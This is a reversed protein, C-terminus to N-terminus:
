LSVIVIYLIFLAFVMGFIPWICFSVHEGASAVALLDWIGHMKECVWHRRRPRELLQSLQQADATAIPTPRWREM